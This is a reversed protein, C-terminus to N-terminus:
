LKTSTLVIIVDCYVPVIIRFQMELIALQLQFSSPVPHKYKYGVQIGSIIKRKGPPANLIIPM